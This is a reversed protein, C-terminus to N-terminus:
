YENIIKFTELYILNLIQFFIQFRVFTIRDTPRLACFRLQQLLSYFICCRIFVDLSYDHPYLLTDKEATKSLLFIQFM